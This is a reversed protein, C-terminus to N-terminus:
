NENIVVTATAASNDFDLTLEGDYEEAISRVSKLGVGHLQKEAKSTSLTEPPSSCKNVVKIIFFGQQSSIQVHVYPEDEASQAELANDILNGLVAALHVDSMVCKEPMVANVTFSIGAAKATSYKTNIVTDATTNGTHIYEAKHEFGERERHIFDGLEELKGQEILSDIALITNKYDHVSKRWLSFTNEQEHLSRELFVNERQMLENDQKKKQSDFFYMISFYITIVLALMVMYFLMMMFNINESSSNAQSFFMVASIMIVLVSSVSLLLSAKTSPRGVKKSLSLFTMCTIFLIAKSCLAAVVREESFGNFIESISVGHIKAVIASIMLDSTFMVAFYCVTVGATKLVSERHIYLEILFFFLFIFITNLSSFLKIRSLMTLVLTMFLSLSIEFYRNSKSRPNNLFAKYFSFNLVIEVFSVFYEVCWYFATM